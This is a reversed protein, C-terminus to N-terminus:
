DEGTFWGTDSLSSWFLEKNKSVSKDVTGTKNM